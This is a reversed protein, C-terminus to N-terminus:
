DYYKLHKKNWEEYFDKLLIWNLKAESNDFIDWVFVSYSVMGGIQKNELDDEFECNMRDSLVYVSSPPNKNFLENRSKSELFTTRLILAFFDMEKICKEILKAPIKKFYPPNTIMGEYKSYDHELIDYSTEIDDIIANDYKNLDFSKVNYGNLSLEKSIYGLGACPEVLNQPIDGKYSKLFAYTVLPPTCYLDNEKRDKRNLIANM